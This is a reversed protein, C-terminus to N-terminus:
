RTFLKEILKDKESDLHESLDKLINNLTGARLPNHKPITLHFEKDEASRTLRVHSGTQRTVQYGYQRLAKILDEGSIDRPLRM